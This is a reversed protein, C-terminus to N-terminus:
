LNNVLDGNFVLNQDIKFLSMQFLVVVFMKNATNGLSQINLKNSWACKVYKKSWILLFNQNIFNQQWRIDYGFKGRVYGLKAAGM